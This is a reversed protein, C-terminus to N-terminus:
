FLSWMVRALVWKVALVLFVLLFGVIVYKFNLMKKM